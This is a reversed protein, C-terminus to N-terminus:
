TIIKKYDEKVKEWIYEARKQRKERKDFYNAEPINEMDIEEGFALHIPTCKTHRKEGLGGGASQPPPLLNYTALALPYFHTPHKSHTAMLYTMEVSQPDFPAVSVAGTADPRDRGGSPAIYICKGGEQLLQSMQKMTKKNHLLKEQKEEPPNEVHKKSYICLLNCGMSFPIALPDTIVRHGAVFIIQEALKPHTQELLLDIAQPDPETQHNAFLIVNDGENLQQAIKDINKLGLVKSRSFIVLPRLFDLGFQYYDFPTTIREHYPKFPYPTKLQEIIFDLFQCLLPEQIAIDQGNEELAYVYSKHFEILNNGLMEPLENTEVLKKTKEVFSSKM